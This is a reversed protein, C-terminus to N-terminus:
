LIQQMLMEFHRSSTTSVAEMSVPAHGTHSRANRATAVLQILHRLSALKTQKRALHVQQCLSDQLAIWVNCIDHGLRHDAPLIIAGLVQSAFLNLTRNAM